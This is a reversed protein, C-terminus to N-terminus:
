LVSEREDAGLLTPPELPPLEAPDPSAPAGAGEDVSVLVLSVAEAGVDAPVPEPL